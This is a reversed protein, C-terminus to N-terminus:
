FVLVGRKEYNSKKPPMTLTARGVAMISAVIGDIKQRSKKKNPKVNAAADTDAVCHGVMWDMVPNGDHRLTGDDIRQKFNKAPTNMGLFGQGQDAIPLGDIGSLQQVVLNAALARDYCLERVIYKEGLSDKLRPRIVAGKEDLAVGSIESRLISYDVTRGETTEIWGGDIWDQLPVKWREAKEKIGDSPMWFRVKLGVTKHDIWWSIGLAVLDEITALDLGLYIEQREPIEISRDMCERWHTRNLWVDDSEAIWRNCIYRIYSRKKAPSSKAENCKAQLKEVSGVGEAIAPNAQIWSEPDDWEYDSVSGDLPDRGAEAIFAFHSQSYFESEPDLLDRAFSYEEFGVSLEDDGATTIMLFMPQARAIDGYMLAEFFARDRWAHVEDAILLHPNKGECSDADHALAQFFSGSPEHIIRRMSPVRRVADHLKSDRVMRDCKNFVIEAQPLTVAAVYAEAEDEDDAMTMYAPLGSLTSSKGSKKATTIFGKDYRRRGDPRKWGFLQCLVDQYWWQMLVFPKTRQWKTPDFRPLYRGIWYLEWENLETGRDWKIRLLQVYFKMLREAAAIDFYCGELLARETNPHLNGDPMAIYDYTGNNRCDTIIQPLKDSM